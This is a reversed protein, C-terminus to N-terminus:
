CDFSMIPLFVTYPFAYQIFYWDNSQLTTNVKEIKQYSFINRTYKKSTSHKLDLLIISVDNLVKKTCNM